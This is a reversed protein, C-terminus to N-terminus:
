IFFFYVWVDGCRVMMSKMSRVLQTDQRSNCNVAMGKMSNILQESKKGNAQDVMMDNMCSILQEENFERNSRSRLIKCIGDHKFALAIHFPTKKDATKASYSAGHELLCLVTEFRGFEAAIHLPSYGAFNTGPVDKVQANVLSKLPSLKSNRAVDIYQDVVSQDTGACAAM